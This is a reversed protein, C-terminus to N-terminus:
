VCLCITIYCCVCFSLPGACPAITRELEHECSAIPKRGRNSKPRPTTAKLPGISDLVASVPLTCSQSIVQPQGKKADATAVTQVFDSEQYIDKYIYIRYSNRAFM